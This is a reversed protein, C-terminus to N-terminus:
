QRRKRQQEYNLGGQSLDLIENSLTQAIRQIAECLYDTNDIKERLIEIRSYSSQADFELVPSAKRPATIM